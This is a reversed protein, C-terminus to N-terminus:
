PQTRRNALEGRMADALATLAAAEARIVGEYERLLDDPIGTVGAARGAYSRAMRRALDTQSRALEMGHRTSQILARRAGEREDQPEDIVTDVAERNSRVLM